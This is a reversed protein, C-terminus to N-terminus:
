RTLTAAVYRSTIRFGVSDENGYTFIEVACIEVARDPLPVRRATILTV